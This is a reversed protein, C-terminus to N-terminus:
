LANLSSTGVVVLLEVQCFCWECNLIKKKKQIHQIEKALIKPYQSNM